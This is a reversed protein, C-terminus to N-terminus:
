IANWATWPALNTHLLRTSASHVLTITSIRLRLADADGDSERIEKASLCVAPYVQADACSKEFILTYSVHSLSPTDVAGSLNRSFGPTPGICLAGRIRQKM